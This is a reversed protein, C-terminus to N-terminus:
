CGLEEKLLEPYKVIVALHAKRELLAVSNVHETKFLENCRLRLTAMWNRGLLNPCNGRVVITASPSGQRVKVDLEGIM